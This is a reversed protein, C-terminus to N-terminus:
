LAYIYIAKGWIKNINVMDFINWILTTSRLSFYIKHWMDNDSCYDMKLFILFNLKLKLLTQIIHVLILNAWYIKAYEDICLWQSRDSLKLPIVILCISGGGPWWWHGNSQLSLGAWKIFLFESFLMSLKVTFLWACTLLVHLYCLHCTRDIFTLCIV